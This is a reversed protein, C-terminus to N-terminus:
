ADDDQEKEKVRVGHETLYHHVALRVFDALRVLGLHRMLQAMAAREARSFRIVTPQRKDM